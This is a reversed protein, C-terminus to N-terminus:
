DQRIQQMLIMATRTTKLKKLAKFEMQRIRERTVPPIMSQAIKELTHFRGYEELGYRMKIVKRERPTLVTLDM